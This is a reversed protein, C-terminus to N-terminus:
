SAEDHNGGGTKNLDYPINKFIRIYEDWPYIYAFVNPKEGYHKFSSIAGVYRDDKFVIGKLCDEYFKQCNTNDCGTPLCLGKSMLERNKKSTKKPISFVFEFVVAVYTQLIDGKYQSKVQWRTYEKQLHKPNYRRGRSERPAAWPVPNKELDIKIFIM